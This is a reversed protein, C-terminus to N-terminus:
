KKRKPKKCSAEHLIKEILNYPTSRKSVPKQVKKLSFLDLLMNIMSYNEFLWLYDDRLTQNKLVSYALNVRSTRELQRYKDRIIGDVEKKDANLVDSELGLISFFSENSPPLHERWDQNTTLITDFRNFYKKIVNPETLSLLIIREVRERDFKKWLERKNKRNEIGIPSINEAIFALLADYDHRLGPSTFISYIKKQLESDKPCSRQITEIDSSKALGAYEYLDPMGEVYLNCYDGFNDRIQMFSDFKKAANIADSHKQILQKKEYPPLCKTYQEFIILFDDYITQLQPNRLVSFAEQIVQLPYISSDIRKRYASVVQDSPAGRYVGLVCYYTPFGEMIDDVWQPHQDAFLDFREIYRGIRHIDMFIRSVKWYPDDQIPLQPTTEPKVGTERSKNKRSM